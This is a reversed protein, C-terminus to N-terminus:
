CWTTASGPITPPTHPWCDAKPTSAASDILLAMIEKGCDFPPLRREGSRLNILRLGQWRSCCLLTEEDWRSIASIAFYPDSSFDLLLKISRSDYDYRYIRNRGGFIVGQETLCASYALIPHGRDDLPIAFDDSSRRYQAIGGDTLIWINHQIDETIQHIYNHPLSHVDEQRHVYKRLKQGDFRGLGANTGIWVFGKPETYVCRVTSPLGEKLSIQKYYYHSAKLPLCCVTFLVTLWTLFGTYPNNKM